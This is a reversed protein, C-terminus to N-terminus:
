KNDSMSAVHTEYSEGDVLEALTSAIFFVAVFIVLHASRKVIPHLKKM